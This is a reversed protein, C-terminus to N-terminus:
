SKFTFTSDATVTIGKAAAFEADTSASGFLWQASQYTEEVKSINLVTAAGIDMTMTVDFTVNEFTAGDQAGKCLAYMTLMSDEDRARSEYSVTMNEFTVNKMSATAQFEGFASVVSGNTIGSKELTLNQITYGFGEFNAAFNRDAISAKQNACDINRSICYNGSGSMDFTLFSTVDSPKRLVTWKGTIYKVYISVDSGDANKEIPWQVPQTGAADYYYDLYTFGSIGKFVEQRPENVTPNTFNYFNVLDGNKYTKSNYTITTNEDCSLYVNVKEKTLWKAAVYWHDGEKLEASFDVKEGLVAKGANGGVPQTEDGEVEVFYWGDFIHDPRSIGVSGSTVAVEDSGINVAVSGPKFYMEKQDKGPTSEFMGGNAFYTVRATLNYQDIIDDMTIGIQCGVLAFVSMLVLLIAVLAKHLKKSMKM